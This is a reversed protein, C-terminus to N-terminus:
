GQIEFTKKCDSEVIKKECYTLVIKTAFYWKQRKEKVAVLGLLLSTALQLKEICTRSM